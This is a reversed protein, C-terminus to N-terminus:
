VNQYVELTTVLEQVTNWIKPKCEEEPILYRSYECALEEILALKTTSTQALLMDVDFKM